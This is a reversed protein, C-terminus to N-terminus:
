KKKKTEVPTVNVVAKAEVGYGLKITVEHRGIERLPEAQIDKKSLKLKKAIEEATISGFLKGKEGAKSAIEIPNEQIKLALEKLKEVEKAIKEREKKAREIVEKAKPDESAVALKNPLLWNRAYGRKVDKTDGIIGLKEVNETLVVKM